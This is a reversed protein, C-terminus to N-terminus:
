HHEIVRVRQARKTLPMWNLDPVIERSLFPIALPHGQGKEKPVIISDM